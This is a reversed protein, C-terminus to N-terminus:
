VTAGDSTIAVAVVAKDHGTLSKIEKGAAADWLRVTKDEGASVLTKSDGAFALAHVPLAHGSLQNYVEGKATSWIRIRGDAGASAVLKNDPSLAIAGTQGKHGLELRAGDFVRSLYNWEFPTSKDKGWSAKASDLFTKALFASGAEWARQ